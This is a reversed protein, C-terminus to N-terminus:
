PKPAEQNNPAPTTQDKTFAKLAAQLNSEADILFNASVVIKEGEELGEEIETYEATRQGIKVERPEYKGEGKEVLVIQHKGSDLVASSPVSVIPEGSAPAIFDATVYMDSRFRGDPNPLTVRVKATRTEKSLNPYIFDVKGKIEEGPFATFSLLVGQGPKILGIDQEYVDAIVWVESLDVIKYLPAGAQIYMGDVVMKELIQGKMPAHVKVTRSPGEKSIRKIEQDSIGLLSLKRMAAKTINGGARQALALEQEALAVQPSYIEILEEGERVEDGTKNAMLNEIWGEYRTTVIMQRSEDPQVTGVAHITRNIIRTKAAETKVGLKQVKSISVQVVNGDAAENEYVPIYDMGMSDKKPENSIDPLGMPNRYYLIKGKGGNEETTPATQAWASEWALLAIILGIMSRMIMRRM